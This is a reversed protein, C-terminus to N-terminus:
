LPRIENKKKYLSPDKNIHEVVMTLSDVWDTVAEAAVTPLLPQNIFENNAQRLLNRRVANATMGECAYQMNATYVGAKQFFTCYTENVGAALRTREFLEVSKQTYQQIRAALSVNGVSRVGDRLAAVTKIVDTENMRAMNVWKGQGSAVAQMM